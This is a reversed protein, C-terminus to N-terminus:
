KYLKNLEDKFTAKIQARKLKLAATVLGSEPTWPEPLLKIKAPIELRDLGADIGVEYLSHQIEKIAELRDCLEPLNRTRFGYEEAWNLLAERSPVILAICYNHFPDAYVMISAVYDSQLLAAEVKGLSIYEGHQLKVIDKKRDIIELCGNRHFRGIDGTYFWRMGREDVQIRSELLLFSSHEMTKMQSM